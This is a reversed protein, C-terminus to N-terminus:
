GDKTFVWGGLYDCIIKQSYGDESTIVFLGAMLMLKNLHKSYIYITATM